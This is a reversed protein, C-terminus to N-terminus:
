KCFLVAFRLIFCKGRAERAMKHANLTVLTIPLDVEKQEKDQEQKALQSKSYTPTKENHMM